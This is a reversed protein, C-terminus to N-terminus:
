GDVRVTVGARRVYETPRGAGKVKQAVYNGSAVLEGIWADLQARGAHKNFVDAYIAKRTAFGLETGDIYERIKDASESFGTVSQARIFHEIAWDGIEIANTMTEETVRDDTTYGGALHLLAAIRLVRGAHKGIWPKYQVLDGDRPHVRRDLEFQYDDYLKWAERNLDITAYEDVSRTDPIVPYQAIDALLTSWWRRGITPADGEPEDDVFTSARRELQGVLDGPVAILFRHVFGADDMMSNHLVSALIPPQPSLVLSLAAREIEPAERSTRKPQHHRCDYGTLVLGLNGPKGNNYLGALNRFFTGEDDILPGAGDNRAMSVSLAEPTTDGDLWGIARPPETNELEGAEREAKKADLRLAEVKASDSSANATRYLTEAREKLEVIKAAHALKRQENMVDVADHLGAMLEAFVPSKRTSVGMSPAVYLNTPQRYERGGRITIRPGAVSGEIGLAVLAPLDVPVQIRTAIGLVYDAMPKPLCHVPFRRAYGHGAQTPTAGLGKVSSQEQPSDSLSLRRIREAFSAARAFNGDRAAQAAGYANETIQRKASAEAVIRAHWEPTGASRIGEQILTAVYANEPLKIGEALIAKLLDQPNLPGGEDAHRCVVRFIEQDTLTSFDVPEIIDRVKELYPLSCMAQGLAKREADRLAEVEDTPGTTTRSTM